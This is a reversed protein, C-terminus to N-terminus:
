EKWDDSPMYTAIRQNKISENSIIQGDKFTITRKTHEAVEPEHTVIVITSGENNLQQFIAIIDETSRTDLNGTPEDALLIAPKNVLARAVAVRQKQGGSMENPRHHFWKHLGVRDLAEEAAKKRASSKVGAYIMPLEVNQMATLKPLLNFSQFIFGIKRNRVTALRNQSLGAVNEGDLIYEGYSITDLCGLINMLTSKGSGSKGM